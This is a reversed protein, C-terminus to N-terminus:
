RIGAPPSALWHMSSDLHRAHRGLFIPVEDLTRSYEPSLSALQRAGEPLKSVSM